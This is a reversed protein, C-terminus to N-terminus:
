CSSEQNYFYVTVEVFVGSVNADFLNMVDTTQSSAIHRIDDNQQLKNLFERRLLRMATIVVQHQIPNWDPHSKDIFLLKLPYSEEIYGSQKIDDYSIIPEDLYVAPFSEDDAELNQWGKIGHYFSPNGTLAEVITKILSIM